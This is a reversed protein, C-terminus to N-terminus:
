TFWLKARALVKSCSAILGTKFNKKPDRPRADRKRDHRIM